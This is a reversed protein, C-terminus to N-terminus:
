LIYISINWYFRKLFLYLFQIEKPQHFIEFAFSLTKKDSNAMKGDHKIHRHMYFGGPTQETKM